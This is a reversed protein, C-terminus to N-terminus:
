APLLAVQEGGCRRRLAGAERDAVAPGLWPRWYAHMTRVVLDTPVADAPRRPCYLLDMTTIPEEDPQYYAVDVKRFGLAHFIRRRAVPDAGVAREREWDEQSLREPAVVDIFVGEVQRGAERELADFRAAHLKRAVGQGRAEPSVALFSSFGTNPGPFYHFLAGGVLEGAAEAVILLNRRDATRTAIMRPFVSPPILLEPEPFTREQLRGFAALAPDAPDTIRRIHVPGM